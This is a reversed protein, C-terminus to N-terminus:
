KRVVLSGTIDSIYAAAQWVFLKNIIANREDTGIGPKLIYDEDINDFYHRIFDERGKAAMVEVSKIEKVTMFENSRFGKVKLFTGNKVLTVNKLRLKGKNSLLNKMFEKYKEKNFGEVESLFHYLYGNEVIVRGTYRSSEVDVAIFFTNRGYSDLIEDYFEKSQSLYNQPTFSCLLLTLVLKM